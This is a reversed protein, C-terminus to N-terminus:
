ILYTGIKVVWINPVNHGSKIWKWRIGKVCREIDNSCFHFQIREAKNKKNYVMMGTCTPFATSKNDQVIKAICKKKTVVQQAFCAKLSTKPLRAIYWQLDNCATEQIALVHPMKCMDIPTALEIPVDPRTEDEQLDLSLEEPINNLSCNGGGAKTSRTCVQLCSINVKEHM